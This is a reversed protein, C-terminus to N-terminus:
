RKGVEELVEGVAGSPPEIKLRGSLTVAIDYPTIARSVRAPKINSGAFVVPVHRDYRWPSGHTAAVNLGDFDAIFEQSGFVVHVDGSRLPQYSAAVMSAPPDDPLRGASIDLGAYASFVEPHEMLMDALTRQVDLLQLGKRAVLKQDLYM